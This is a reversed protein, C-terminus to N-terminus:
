SVGKLFLGNDIVSISVCSKIHAFELMTHPLKLMGNCDITIRAINKGLCILDKLSLDQTQIQSLRNEVYSQSLLRLGGHGCDPVVYIASPNGLLTLCEKSLRFCGDANLNCKFVKKRQVWTM